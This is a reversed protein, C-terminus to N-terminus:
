AAAKDAAFRLVKAVREAVRKASYEQTALTWAQLSMQSRASSDTVLRILRDRWQDTDTALYGSLGERVQNPIDGIPTAVVPIGAGMYQAVKLSFKWHNWPTDPMPALGVDFRRLAAVEGDSSWNSITYSLGEIQVNGSGVFEFDVDYELQVAILAEAIMQLNQGTSASGMWGVVLPRTSSAPERPRPLPEISSPTRVVFEAYQRAWAQLPYSNALVAASAACTRKIKSPFKLNSFWGQFPSRLPVFIPDDISYVFPIRKARLYREILEPGILAAERYVYVLDFGGLDPFDRVYRSYAQLMARSKEAVNGHSYLISHLSETEFPYFTIEIGEDRLHKQWVEISSRQGPAHGLLNPVLGLVRM